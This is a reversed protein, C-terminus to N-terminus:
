DDRFIDHTGIRLWFIHVDGPNPGTGYRWMARGDPAWSLEFVGPRGRVGKVRLSARFNRTRLDVFFMGVTRDFARRQDDRLRFYERMFQESEDHTPM